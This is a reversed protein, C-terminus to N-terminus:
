FLEKFVQYINPAAKKLAEPNVRYQGYADAFLESRTNIYKAYSSSLYGGNHSRRQAYARAVDPAKGANVLRQYVISEKDRNLAKVVNSQRTMLGGSVNHKADIAHGLEHFFTHKGSAGIDNMYVAHRSPVYVGMYRRSLRINTAQEFTGITLKTEAAFKKEAPSLKVTLSKTGRTLKITQGTAKTSSGGKTRGTKAPDKSVDRPARIGKEYKGTDPNYGYTQKALEPNSIVSLRHKCSPHFLGQAKAYEVTPYGRTKGTLSLIQGEWVACGKHDSGNRSVEVLDYGNELMKNALGTNVAETIKTRALMDAYRDLTWAKGSKDVLGSIGRSVLENRVAAVIEKRTVGGILKEAIRERITRQVATNLINAASRNAITMSEAFARSADDILASVARQNLLSFTARSSIQANAIQLDRVAEKMGERYAAPMETELWKATDVGLQDLTQQIQKLIARRQIRGFDTATAIENYIDRYARQYLKTLQAVKAEIDEPTM